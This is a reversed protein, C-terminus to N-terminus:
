NGCLFGCNCGGGGFGTGGGSPPPPPAILGAFQFWRLRRANDLSSLNSAESASQHVRYFLVDPDLADPQPHLTLGAVSQDFYVQTGTRNGVDAYRDDPLLGVQVTKGVLAGLVLSRRTVKVPVEPAYIVGGVLSGGQILVQQTAEGTPAVFIRLNEPTVRLTNMLAEDRGLEPQGYLVSGTVTVPGEVFLNVQGVTSFSANDLTLSKAYYTGPTVAAWRDRITINGGTGTFTSPLLTTALSEATAYPTKVGPLDPLTAVAGGLATADYTGGSTDASGGLIDGHVVSGSLLRIAHHARSKTGIHGQNSYNGSLTLPVMLDGNGDLLGRNPLGGLLLNAAISVLHDPDSSQTDVGGITGRTITVGDVGIIAQSLTVTPVTREVFASVWVPAQTKSLGLMEVQFQNQSYSGNPLKAQCIMYTGATTADELLRTNQYTCGLDDFTLLRGAAAVADRIGLSEAAALDAETAPLSNTRLVELSRDFAGEAAWFAQQLDRSVQASHVETMTRQLSVGGLLFLMLSAFYVALLFAAGRSNALRRPRGADRVARCTLRSLANQDRM